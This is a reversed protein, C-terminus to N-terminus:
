YKKSHVDVNELEARQASLTSVKLNTRSGGINEMTATNRIEEVYAWGKVNSRRVLM